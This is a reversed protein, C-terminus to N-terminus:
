ILELLKKPSKTLQEVKGNHLYYVDEIRVGGYNKIYIGPEITFIMGNKFITKSKPGIRFGEHVKKGIGHGLTHRFSPYGKSIIYDRAIKDVDAAKRNPKVHEMARKQAELVTQYIKKQKASARGFFITRTMDSCYNNVKTGLDIMIFGHNKRLKLNTPKHHIEYANKGFAVIPRFSLTAKYKKTVRQIELSLERETIGIRIKKLIQSYIKDGFVCAKKIKLIEEPTKVGKM